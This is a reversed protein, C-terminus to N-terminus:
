FYNELRPGLAHVGSAGIPNGKLCVCVHSADTALMPALLQAGTSTISNAALNLASLMVGPTLHKVLAWAGPDGIKNAGLDLTRLQASAHLAQGLLWAGNDGLMNGHLNLESLRGLVHLAAAIAVAGEEGVCNFSIDITTLGTCNQLADFLGATEDDGICNGAIDIRLLASNSLRATNIINGDIGSGILNSSLQLTHLKSNASLCSLLRRVGGEGVANLRLDLLGLVSDSDELALALAGSGKDRIRNDSLRLAALSRNAHLASALAKAGPEGILNSSLDLESLSPLLAEGSGSPDRMLLAAIARVGEDRIACRALSLFTINRSRKSIQRETDGGGAASTSMSSGVSATFAGGVRNMSAEANVDRQSAPSVATDAKTHTGSSSAAITTAKALARALALAGSPGVRRNHSLDLVRLSSCSGLAPALLRLGRSSISVRCMLLTELSACSAIAAGVMRAGADGLAEGSFSLTRLKNAKLLNAMSKIRSALQCSVALGARVDQWHDIAGMENRASTYRARFRRMGARNRIQRAAHHRPRAMGVLLVAPKVRAM